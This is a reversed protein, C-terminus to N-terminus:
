ISFYTVERKEFVRMEEINQQRLKVVAAEEVETLNWNGVCHGELVYQRELLDNLSGNSTTNYKGEIERGTKGDKKGKGVRSGSRSAEKFVSSSSASTLNAGPRFDWSPIL